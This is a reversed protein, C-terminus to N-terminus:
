AKPPYRVLCSSFASEANRKLEQWMAHQKHAYSRHGPASALDALLSWQSARNEFFLATWRMESMLLISEELWRHYRAHARLWNVRYLEEMYESSESDTGVNMNWIWSLTVKGQGRANPDYVAKLAVLHESKLEKYRGMTPGPAQLNLIADRAQNYIRVHRKLEQDAAKVAAYGRTKMVKSESLRINNRFLFSKHGIERRVGELANEAQSIRLTLEAKAAAQLFTTLREPCTSPLVLPTTEIDGKPMEGMNEEVEDDLLIEGGYPIDRAPVDDKLSTVKPFLRQFSTNFEWVRHHLVERKKNVEIQQEASPSKGQKRIFVKQYKVNYIDMAEVNGAKRERQANDSMNKWIAIQDPNATETLMDYDAKADESADCNDKWKKCLAPVTDKLYEEKIFLFNYEGMGIMKKFNNDGMHSDLTESRHALTMTRAITSIGNLVSFLRELTEGDPTGMGPIFRPAFRAYCVDQHGHVHFMGISPILNLGIRFNLYRGQEVRKFLNKHYQCNVDYCYLICPCKDTNTFKFAKCLGWDMNMHREGKQFNVISGPCYCGHRLCAFAGIGSVDCGKHPKARDLVARHENCTCPEPEEKTCDLHLQYSERETMYGQGDKIWVDDTTRPQQQHVAVFNGDGVFSRNYKWQDKDAEWNDPLNIGPQPCTPCFLALEAEGPDRDRHGFGHWKWEKINRWQREARALERKRDPVQLPFVGDTMRRLKAYYHHCSTQCELNELLYDDLVHFTFVTEIVKFTSPYYGMRIYQNLPEPANPCKCTLVPLHHVGNTHVFVVTASGPFQSAIPRSRGRAGYEPSPDETDTDDIDAPEADSGYTYNFSSVSRLLTGNRKVGEVATRLNAENYPCCNGGHGLHITVGTQWLWAPQFHTGTWEEIRHFPHRLHEERCCDICFTPQYACDNCRIRYKERKCKSCLVEEPPADRAIIVDLFPRRYHLWERMYDHTSKTKRVILDDGTLVVNFLHDDQTDIDYNAESTSCQAINQARWDDDATHQPTSQTSTPRDPQLNPPDGSQPHASPTFAIESLTQVLRTSRKSPELKLHFGKAKPQPTFFRRSM